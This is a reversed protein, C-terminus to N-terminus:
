IEGRTRSNIAFLKGRELESKPQRDIMSGDARDRKMVGTFTNVSPELFNTM